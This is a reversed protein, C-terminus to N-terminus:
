LWATDRVTSQLPFHRGALSLARNMKMRDVRRWKYNGDKLPVHVHM